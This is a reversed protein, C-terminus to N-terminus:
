RAGRLRRSWWETVLVALLAAFLWALSPQPLQFTLHRTPATPAGIRDIWAVLPAADAATPQPARIAPAYAVDSVRAAWWRRSAVTGSDGGMMRWRWLDRYGVQEVRGGGFARLAVTTHGARREIAIASDRLTVLSRAPVLAPPVGAREGGSADGAPGGGGTDAAALVPVSRDAGDLLVLGGGDQVYRQLASPDLGTAEGVILVAAVRGTDLPALPGQAVHAQPTLTLRLDVRWGREELARVLFKSEWGVRGVVLLPRLLLSDAVAARAVTGTATASALGTPPPGDLAEGGQHATMSDIAGLDDSVTIRTGAPAAVMMRVRGAPDARPVVSLAAGVVGPGHPMWSVHMGGAALAAVWARTAANPVADLDIRVDRPAPGTTWATLASQLERGNVTRRMPQGGSAFVGISWVMLGLASARLAWEIALRWPSADPAGRADLPANDPLAGGIPPEGMIPQSTALTM